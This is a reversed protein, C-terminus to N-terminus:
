FDSRWFLAFCIRPIGVQFRGKVDSDYFGVTSFNYMMTCIFPFATDRVTFNLLLSHAPYIVLTNFLFHM